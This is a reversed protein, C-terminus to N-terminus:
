HILCGDTSGVVAFDRHGIRDAHAARRGATRRTHEMEYAVFEGRGESTTLPHHVVQVFWILGVMFLTAALHRLM